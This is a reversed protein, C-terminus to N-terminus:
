RVQRYDGTLMIPSVIVTGARDHYVELRAQWESQGTFLYDAGALGQYHDTPAIRFYTVKGTPRLTPVLNLALTPM